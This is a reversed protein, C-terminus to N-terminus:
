YMCTYIHLSYISLISKCSLIFVYVFIQISLFLFFGILTYQTKFSIRNQTPNEASNSVSIIESEFATVEVRDKEQQDCQMVFAVVTTHFSM